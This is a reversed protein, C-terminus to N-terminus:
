VVEDGVRVTHEDYVPEEVVVGNGVPVCSDDLGDKRNSRIQRVM